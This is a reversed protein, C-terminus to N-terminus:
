GNVKKVANGSYKLDNELERLVSEAAKWTSEMQAAQNQGAYVSQECTQWIALLAQIRIAPVQYETLRLRVEEQNMQAPSLHVKEALYTQISKLLADYFARPQGAQLLTPISAFRDRFNRSSVVVQNNPREPVPAKKQQKKWFFMGAFLLFLLVGLGWLAASDLWHKWGAGTPETAPVLLAISDQYASKPQYNKGASVQFDIKQATKIIYRNSDPDFFAFSPQLTYFGPEKPLVIYELAKSHVMQEMDEYSEESSVKPEFIELSDSTPLVPPAVRNGDGNGQMSITLVLADDTSLTNKDASVSWDYHGVAGTFSAPAPEPLPKVQLRVPQTQLLVPKSGLLMGLGSGSEVAARVKAVGITIEKPEQPFLAEEHLTKVAYKKGRVTQYQVRTDFRRKEKSYFGQFDPLEILDAGEVSLQTYLRIRWTVQQGPYATERDLEGTIFIQDDSNPPVGSAGKNARSPAVRIVLPKSNLTKGNATVSAPGISFSGTRTAELQYVWSQHASTQGNIISMGRMESPGGTVKFGKFDPAIFRSGQANKLSFTVEFTSGEVVERFEVSAEFAVPAQARLGASQLLLLGAMIPICARVSPLFLSFPLRSTMSAFTIFHFPQHPNIFTSSPQHLNIILNLNIILTSICGSM